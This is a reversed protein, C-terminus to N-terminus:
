SIWRPQICAWAFIHLYGIAAIAETRETRDRENTTAIVAKRVFGDMSFYRLENALARLLDHEDRLIGADPPAFTYDLRTARYGQKQM